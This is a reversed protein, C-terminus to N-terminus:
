NNDRTILYLMQFGVFIILIIVYFTFIFIYREYVLRQENADYKLLERDLETNDALPASFGYDDLTKGESQLRHQINKLLQNKKQGSTGHYDLTLANYMYNDDYICICPFGNIMMNAFLGRLQNPTSHPMAERFCTEAENKDTVLEHSIAAEQFTRYKTFTPAKGTKADDFSIIPRHILILRLYWIDGATVYLNEM